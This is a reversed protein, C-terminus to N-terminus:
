MEMATKTANKTHSSVGCGGGTGRCFLLEKVVQSSLGKILETAVGCADVTAQKINGDEKSAEVPTKQFRGARGVMTFTNLQGATVAQLKKGVDNLQKTVLDRVARLPSSSLTAGWYKMWLADLLVEDTYSKFYSTELQYYQKAHVGFDEIKDIPITQYQSPGEDPPSYGEPYTRFAGLEVKGAALTRHPDVVIALFPEQYRQNTMQTNVDIGSLWCGYGPHSHYWGVVHEPRGTQKSTELFSVMYENAEAQANVRTETGEVPLAFADIIIFTDGMVKGQMVGMVELNGGSKAHM